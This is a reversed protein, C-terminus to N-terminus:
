TSKSFDWVTEALLLDVNVVVDFNYSFFELSLAFSIFIFHLSFNYFYVFLKDSKNISKVNIVLLVRFSSQLPIWIIEEMMM